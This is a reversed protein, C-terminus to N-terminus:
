KNESITKKTTFIWSNKIKNNRENRKFLKKKTMKIKINM